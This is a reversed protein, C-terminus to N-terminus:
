VGEQSLRVLSAMPNALRRDRVEDFVRAKLASYASIGRVDAENMFSAAPIVVLLLGGSHDAGDLFQRLVEYADLVNAKTYYFRDDRPNKALALRSIDLSVVAGPLGSFRLWWLLSELLHRASNRTVKTYIQYPKTAAMSTNKGTLWDKMAKMASQGASGGDLKALCMQTMAVRFDKSLGKQQFVVKGIGKKMDLMLLKADVGNQQALNEYLPRGDGDGARYGLEEAIRIVAREALEEWPVQAAIQFFIQDVMHVRTDHAAIPVFLYGRRVARDRLAALLADRSDGDEPVAVKVASGGSSVFDALYESEMCSLWGAVSITPNM